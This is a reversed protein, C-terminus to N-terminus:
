DIDPLSSGFMTKVRFDYRNWLMSSLVYLCIIPCSFFWLFKDTVQPLRHNEGSVGTEEVLLFSRWVIVLINNFTAYFVM